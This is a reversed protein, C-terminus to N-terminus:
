DDAAIALRRYRFREPEELVLACFAVLDAISVQRLPRDPRVPGPLRGVALAPRYPPSTM